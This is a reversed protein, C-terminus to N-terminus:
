GDREELDTSANVIVRWTPDVPGYTVGGRRLLVPTRSKGMLGRFPVAADAGFLRDVLLGVRRAAAVSGFRGLVGVLRKLLEPDRRVALDLASLVQSFAV